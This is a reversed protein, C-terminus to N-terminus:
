KKILTTGDTSIQYTDNFSQYTKQVPANVAQAAPQAFAEPTPTSAQEEVAKGGPIATMKASSSEEFMEDDTFVYDSEKIQSKKILLYGTAAGATFGLTSALITNRILKSRNKKKEEEAKKTMDLAESYKDMVLKSISNKTNEVVPIADENLDEIKKALKDKHSVIKPYQDKATKLAYKIGDTALNVLTNRLTAM